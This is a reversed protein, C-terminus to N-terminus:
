HSGLQQMRVFPVDSVRFQRLQCNSKVVKCIRGFIFISYELNKVEKQLVCDRKLLQYNRLENLHPSLSHTYIFMGSDFQLNTTRNTGEDKQARIDM